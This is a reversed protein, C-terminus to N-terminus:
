SNESTYNVAVTGSPVKAGKSSSWPRSKLSPLDNSLM